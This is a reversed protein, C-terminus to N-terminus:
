VPSVKPDIELIQANNKIIIRIKLVFNLNQVSLLVPDEDSGGGGGDLPLAHM